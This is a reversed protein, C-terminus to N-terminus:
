PKVPRQTAHLSRMVIVCVASASEDGNKAVKKWAVGEDVRWQVTGAILRQAQSRTTAFGHEVLFLDARM